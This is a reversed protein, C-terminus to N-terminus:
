PRRGKLRRAIAKAVARDILSTVAESIQLAYASEGLKERVAEDTKFLDDVIHKGILQSAPSTDCAM